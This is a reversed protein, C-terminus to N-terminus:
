GSFTREETEAWTGQIDETEGKTGYDRIESLIWVIRRHDLESHIWISWQIVVVSATVVLVCCCCSSVDSVPLEVISTSWLSVSETGDSIMLETLADGESSLLLISWSLVLSISLEITLSSSSLTWSWGSVVVSEIGFRAFFGSGDIFLSSSPSNWLGSSPAYVHLNHEFTHYQQRWRQFVCGHALGHIISHHWPIPQHM